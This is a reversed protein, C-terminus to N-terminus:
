KIFEVVEEMSRRSKPRVPAHEDRYGLALLLTSTLNKAKLGLIEDVKAPDFGEMPGNDVELLSATEIMVGLAIYAQSKTWADIEADSRGAMNGNVMQKLGDLAELGVGQAKSTRALLEDTIHERVDTRRAIVILHSAETVKPQGWAAERIKGRLEPNEIVLFKWAEIGFSSPTLRAAELITKLDEDSVKKSADFVQTAFRWNMAKIIEQGNM